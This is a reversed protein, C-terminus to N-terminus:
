TIANIGTAATAQRKQRRPNRRQIRGEIWERAQDKPIYVCGGWMLFPMGQDRYRKSTRCTIGQALAWNTEREYKDLFDPSLPRRPKYM